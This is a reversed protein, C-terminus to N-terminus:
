YEWKKGVSNIHERLKHVLSDRESKMNYHGGEGVSKIMNELDRIDWVVKIIQRGELERALDSKSDYECEEHRLMRPVVVVPKNFQFATMISGAGDHCVIIRAKQCLKEIDKKPAFRFYEANKPVYETVGIQIIVKEDIKAAIRDMEKILRHFSFKSTGITVFIM